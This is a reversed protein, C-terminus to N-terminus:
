RTRVLNFMHTLFTSACFRLISAFAVFSSCLYLLFAASAVTQNRGLDEDSGDVYSVFITMWDSRLSLALIWTMFHIPFM